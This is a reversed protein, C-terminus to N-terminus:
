SPMGSLRELMLSAAAQEAARKSSGSATVDPMGPLSVSVQFTPAHPPGDTAVVLYAPRELSRAQAWEQLATKPDRSPLGANAILPQWHRRVFSEAPQWGGDLYIAGILAEVTDALIAPNDRGGGDEESRAVVLWGGVGLKRAIGALTERRVLGDQRLALTGEPDARFHEILMHAVVLGLVRDGLFELRENSRRGKHRATSRRVASAHTLAESLLEPKRFTYGLVSEVAPVAPGGASRAPTNAEMLSDDLAVARLPDCLAM